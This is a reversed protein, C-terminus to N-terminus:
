RYSHGAERIEKGEEDEEYENSHSTEDTISAVRHGIFHRVFCGLAHLLSVHADRFVPHDHADFLFVLFVINILRLPLADRERGGIEM